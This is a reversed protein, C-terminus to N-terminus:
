TAMVIIINDYFLDKPHHNIWSMFLMDSLLSLLGFWGITDYKSQLIKGNLLWNGLITNLFTCHIINWNSRWPPNDESITDRSIINTSGRHM